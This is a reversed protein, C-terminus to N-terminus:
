QSIRYNITGSTYSSCRFRYQNGYEGDQFTDSLPCNFSYAPPMRLPLWTTGGDFSRELIITAVFTGWLSFNFSRMARPTLTLSTGLGNFTGTVPTIGSAASGIVSTAESYTGDGNDSLKIKSGNNQLTYTIDSM